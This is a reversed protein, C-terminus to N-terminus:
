EIRAILSNGSKRRNRNLILPQSGRAKWKSVSWLSYAPALSLEIQEEIGMGVHFDLLSIWDWEQTVKDM